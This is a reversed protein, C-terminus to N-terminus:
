ASATAAAHRPTNSVGQSLHTPPPQATAKPQPQMGGNTTRTNPEKESPLLAAAADGVAAAETAAIAITENQVCCESVGLITPRREVQRQRRRNPWILGRLHVLGDRQLGADFNQVCQAADRVATNWHHRKPHTRAPTPRQSNNCLVSRRAWRREDRRGRVLAHRGVRRIAGM